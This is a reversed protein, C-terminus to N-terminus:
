MMAVRRSFDNRATETGLWVAAGCLGHWFRPCKPLYQKHSFSFDVFPAFGSASQNKPAAPPIRVRTPNSGFQNRTLGTIVVEIGSRINEAVGARLFHKPFLSFWLIKRKIIDGFGQSFLELATMQKQTLGTRDNTKADPENHGSQCVANLKPAPRSSPVSLVIIGCFAEPHLLSLPLNSFKILSSVRGFGPM